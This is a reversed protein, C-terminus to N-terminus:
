GPSIPMRPPATEWMLKVDAPTLGFAENVIDSVRRELVDAERALQQLPVVSAAHEDKFRKVEAVSFAKRKRGKKV